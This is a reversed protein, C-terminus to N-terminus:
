GKGGNIYPYDTYLIIDIIDDIFTTFDFYYSGEEGFYGFKPIDDRNM